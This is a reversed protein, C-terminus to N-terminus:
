MLSWVSPMMDSDFVATPRGRGSQGYEALSLTLRASPDSGPLIGMLKDILKTSKGHRYTWTGWAAFWTGAIMMGELGINVVGSRESYLGGLGALLIPIALRLAAGATSRSTLDSTGTILEAVTMLLVVILPLGVYLLTRNIGSKRAVTATTM